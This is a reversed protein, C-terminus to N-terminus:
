DDVTVVIKGLALGANLTEFGQRGRGTSPSDEHSSSQRQGGPIDGNGPVNTDEYRLLLPRLRRPGPASRSRPARGFLWRLDQAGM